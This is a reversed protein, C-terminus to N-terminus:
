VQVIFYFLSDKFTSHHNTFMFDLYFSQIQHNEFPNIISHSTIQSFHFM